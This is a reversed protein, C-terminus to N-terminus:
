KHPQLHERRSTFFARVWARGGQARAIVCADCLILMKTSLEFTMRVNSIKACACIGIAPVPIDIKGWLSVVFTSTRLRKRQNIQRALCLVWWGPQYRPNHLLYSVSSRYWALSESPTQGALSSCHLLPQVIADQTFPSTWPKGYYAQPQRALLLGVVVRVVAHVCM